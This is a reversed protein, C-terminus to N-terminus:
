GSGELARRLCGAVREQQAEALHPYLPLSLIEGAAREAEPFDGATHGLHRLAGHLHLPTPYHIGAGIGEAQLRALLQDRRGPGARSERRGSIRVVYLHYVHQNGPLTRPLEVEEIGALLEDYRAAARRRAANWADLRRLKAALVVAQLTDLRSNFGIEPHHYKRESGWNRLKRVREAVEDRRTLVAGADGYAGLNKGPYFSTAAVAGFGGCGRGNRRAGQSQAADELVLLGRAAAIEGIAEMDAMQGFLHVPMVARTRPGIREEIRRPDMLFLADCDVPVPRAGARLVGLATAIFTNAPVLVEEGEGLGLARVALEIADTGSGVGVCHGVGCYAAFDQEFAAVERGLIFSTDACVRAFGREVEEAIEAHQAKLDVM